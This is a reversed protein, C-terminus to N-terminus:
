KYNKKYFRIYGLIDRSKILEILNSTSIIAIDYENSKFQSFLLKENAVDRAYNKAFISNSFKEINIIAQQTTLMNMGTKYEKVNHKLLNYDSMASKLGLTRGDVNKVFIIVKHEVEPEYNYLGKGDANRLEKFTESAELSDQYKNNGNNMMQLDGLNVGTSDGNSNNKALLNLLEQAHMQESSNPYTQIIRQLITKSKDIEKLGIHSVADVLEYKALLPHAKYKVHASSAKEIAENYKGDLYLNYTVDYDEMVSNEEKKKDAYYDPNNALSAFTTNAFEDNLLKKYYSSKPINNVKEYTIYLGYYSQKKYSTNPFRYLLTDFMQISHPYDLLKSFYIIGLNYYADMIKENSADIDAPTKPLKALLSSITNGEISLKDKTANGEEDEDESESIVFSANTASLRRWNDELKRTGWKAKFDNTGKEIMSNNYFYWNSKNPTNPQLAVVNVNNNNVQQNDVNKKLKDLERRAAAKQEKDSKKSLMQMSDQTRITNIHMVVDTLVVKRLNVENINDIPPTTGFFSASDYAMKALEFHTQNYYLDGLNAFAVAKQTLDKNETNEISKKYLTIAKETNSQALIAALTNMAQSKYKAYKPDVVIKELQNIAYAIDGGGKAANEAIYLKTFFDMELDSKKSISKKFHETSKAYDKNEALLQALLFETRIRNNEPLHQKAAQTLSEIADEKNGQTLDLNAKTLFLSAKYREPFNKDKSLTTLLSQAEGYQEAMIYSKALWVLAENRIPHHRFKHIGKRNEVTAISNPDKKEFKKDKKNTSNKYENAIFQFTTIAGEFDNKVYSARGMLFFLNDFWKSRPDHIQTSFSSKKIVTDMYSAVSAGQKKIDYQDLSISKSFDEKHGKTMIKVAEDYKRKANYYYNYRTVTNQYIKRPMNWKKKLFKENSWEKQKAQHVKLTLAKQKEAATKENKVELDKANKKRAIDLSDNRKQRAAVLSDKMKDRAEKLAALQSQQVTKVSDNYQQRATSISDNYHQRANKISDNIRERETKVIDQETQRANKISDKVYQRRSEISDKYQKSNRYKNLLEREIREQTRVTNLSDNYQKRALSISDQIRKREFAISDQIRKEEQRLSDQRAYVADLSDKNRQKIAIDTSDKIRRDEILKLKAEERAISDAKRKVIRAQVISDRYEQIQKKQLERAVSDDIRKQKIAAVLSDRRAIESDIRKQIAATDVGKPMTNAQGSSWLPLLFIYIVIFPIYLYPRIKM